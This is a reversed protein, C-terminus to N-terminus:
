IDTKTDIRYVFFKYALFNWSVIIPIIIIKAIEARLPTYTVLAYLTVIQFIYNWTQLVSYRILETRTNGNSRFSWHKNATFNFYLAAIQSIATAILYHVAFASHLILFLGYDIFLSSFGVIIYKVAERRISWAWSLITITLKKM